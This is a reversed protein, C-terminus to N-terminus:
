GKKKGEEQNPIFPVIHVVHKWEIPDFKKCWVESEDEEDVPDGYEEAGQLAERTPVWEAGPPLHIVRQWEGEVKFAPILSNFLSKAVGDEQEMEAIQIIHDMDRLLRAKYKGDYDAVM